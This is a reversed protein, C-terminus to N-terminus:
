LLESYASTILFTKLSTKFQPLSSCHRTHAPLNNWVLPAQVSFSRYGFGKLKWRACSKFFLFILKKIQAPVSLALFTYMSVHHCTNHSPVMLSVSVLPPKKFIIGEKVPLWQLAKLLARDLTNMDVRAFFLKRHMTKFKKCGTGRIVTSALSCLQLVGVSQSCFFVDAPCHSEDDASHTNPFPISSM